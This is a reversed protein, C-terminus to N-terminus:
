AAQEVGSINAAIIGARRRRDANNPGFGLSIGYRDFIASIRIISTHLDHAIRTATQGAAYRSLVDVVYDEDERGVPLVVSPALGAARLTDHWTGWRKMFTRHTPLGFRRLDSNTPSRGLERALNRLADLLERDDYKHPRLRRVGILACLNEISGFYLEVTTRGIGHKALARYHLKGSKSESRAVALVQARCRGTKNLYEPTWQNSDKGKRRQGTEGPVTPDVRKGNFMKGSAHLRLGTAIRRQRGKESVLASKSLLGVESKYADASMGHVKVTHSGLNDYTKGCYACLLKGSDDKLVVGVPHGPIGGELQEFPEKYDGYWFEGLDGVAIKRM